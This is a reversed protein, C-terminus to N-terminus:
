LAGGYTAPWVVAALDFAQPRRGDRRARGRGCRVDGSGAARRRRLDRRGAGADDVVFSGDMTKWALGPPISAGLLVLGIQQSRSLLDSHFWKPEGGVDVPYGGSLTRRDREAKIAEWHAARLADLDPGPAAAFPAVVWALGSWNARDEGPTTTTSTIPPPEGTSRPSGDPVEGDYWGRADFRYAM